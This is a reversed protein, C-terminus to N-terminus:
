DVDIRLNPCFPKDIQCGRNLDGRTVFCLHSFKVEQARRFSRRRDALPWVSGPLWFGGKSVLTSPNHGGRPKGVGKRRAQRCTGDIPVHM